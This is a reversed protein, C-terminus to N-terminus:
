QVDQIWVFNKTQKTIRSVPAKSQWEVPCNYDHMIWPHNLLNKMSIRKKPDVRTAMSYSSILMEFLMSCM